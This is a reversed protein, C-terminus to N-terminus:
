VTVDWGSSISGSPIYAKTMHMLWNSWFLLMIAHTGPSLGHREVLALPGAAVLWLGFVVSTQRSLGASWRTACRLLAILGISALVFMVPYSFWIAVAGALGLWLANLPSEQTLWSHAALLCLLCLAVDSAYPKVEAAYRILPPSLAFAGPALLMAPLSLCKRALKAFLPLALLSGLQPIFRFGYEGTGAVDIVVKLLVLFGSPAM